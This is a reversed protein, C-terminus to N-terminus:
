LATHETLALLKEKVLFRMDIFAMHAEGVTHIDDARRGQHWNWVRLSWLQYGDVDIAVSYLAVRDGLVDVLADHYLYEHTSLRESRPRIVTFLQSEHALPHEMGTSLERFNIKFKSNREPYTESIDVTVYLNRTEDKYDHSSVKIGPVPDDRNWRCLSRNAPESSCTETNILESIVAKHSSTDPFYWALGLQRHTISSSRPPCDSPIRLRKMVKLKFSSWANAKERLIRLCEATSVNPPRPHVQMLGQAGLELSYQLEVSNKVTTCM